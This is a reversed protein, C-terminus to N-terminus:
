PPPPRTEQPASKRTENANIAPVPKKVTQVGRKAYNEIYILITSLDVLNSESSFNNRLECALHLLAAM